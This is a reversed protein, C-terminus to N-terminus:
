QNLRKRWGSPRVHVVDSKARGALLANVEEDFGARTSELADGNGMSVIFRREYELTFSPRWAPSYGPASTDIRVSTAGTAAVYRASLEALHTVFAGTDNAPQGVGFELTDYAPTTSWTAVMDGDVMTYHLPAPPEPLSFVTSGSAVLRRSISRFYGGDAGVTISQVDTPLLATAPIVRVSTATSDFGGFFADTSRTRLSAGATVDEDTRRNTITIPILDLATGEAMADVVPMVITPGAVILDRRIAVHPDSESGSGFPVAILDFTGDPTRLRFQWDDTLSSQFATGLRIEGRQAASGSVTSPAPPVTLSCPLALDTSDDPTRAIELTDAGTQDACVSEVIYPGHVEAQYLGPAIATPARWSMDVADRYVVLVADGTRMTIMASPLERTDGPGAADVPAGHSGGGCAAIAEVIVSVTVSVASYRMVGGMTRSRIVPGRRALQHRDM